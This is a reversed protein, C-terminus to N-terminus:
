NICMNSINSNSNHNSKIQIGYIFYFSIPILFKFSFPLVTKLRATGARSLGGRAGAGERIPQGRRDSGVRARVDGSGRERQGTPGDQRRGKGEHARGTRERRVPGREDASVAQERVKRAPGHVGGTL